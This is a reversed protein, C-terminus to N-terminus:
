KNDELLINDIRENLMQQAVHRFTAPMGCQAAEYTCQLLVCCSGVKQSGAATAFPCDRCAIGRCNGNQAIILELMEIKTM